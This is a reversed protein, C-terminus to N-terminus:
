LRWGDGVLTWYGGATGSGMHRFAPNLINARHPPSNMWGSFASQASPQGQHVNEALAGNFPYGARQIRQAVVAGDSGAGSGRPM